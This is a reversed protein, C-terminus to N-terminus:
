SRRRGKQVPIATLPDDPWSHKPYRGRLEKRVENYSRQWFGAIDSTVQVPRFNPALLKFILSAKKIGLLPTQTLGFVEQLRVEVYPSENSSYQIQHIGGSPAYFHSPMLDKFLKLIKSDIQMEIFYVLDQKLVEDIQNYGVSAMELAQRIQDETLLLSKDELDQNVFYDWRYIWGQLAKHNKILDPWRLVLLDIFKDGLDEVSVKSLTPEDLDLDRFRRTKKLYFQGKESDFITEEHFDIQDKLIELVEAKSFGHAFHILTEPQGPIDRGQLALFFESKVVQSSSTLKVGRGGVMIGRDTGSRRRCLRDSQTKLLLKSLIYILDSPHNTKDENVNIKSAENKSINDSNFNKQSNIKKQKLVKKLQTVTEMVTKLQYFYVEKSKKLDGSEYDDITQLRDILDSESGSSWSQDKSLIDKDQLLAVVKASMDLIDEVDSINHEAWYLLIGYRPDVPYSLLRRGIDTIAGGADIARSSKLFLEARDLLIQPPRSLWAFSKSDTVGLHSLLLVTSTLDLRQVEPSMEEVQSSEEHITWLRLCKGEKERAARGARQKANFKSVSTLNLISFGSNFNTTLVRSLGTDIVANVGSVTVSAEAINTALIVRKNEHPKLINKQEQLSLSGHLSWIDRKFGKEILYEKVRQIEGVGPLFVLIDDVGKNIDMNIVANSVRQIFQFDTQLSMPQQSHQIQLPFVRGPVDVVVSEELYNKIQTLDLTASMVLVKLNRGLQQLEKVVGLLVDQNLNREHFEDIVILDFDLLEPDDILRRLLVADTMFLLRTNKNFKSDLRVQYGVEEGLVWNNEESVFQSASVAAMRRPQLIAVKGSVAKLLHPPLRTTKGAGPTATLVVQSNLSVADIIHNIQTDIPLARM